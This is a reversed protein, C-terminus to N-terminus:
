ASLSPRSIKTPRKTSLLSRKLAEHVNRQVPATVVISNLANTLGALFRERRENWRPTGHAKIALREELEDRLQDLSEASDIM